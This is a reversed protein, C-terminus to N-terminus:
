RAAQLRGRTVRSSLALCSPRVMVAPVSNGMAVSEFTMMVQATIPAIWVGLTDGCRGIVGSSIALSGDCRCLGARRHKVEVRAIRANQCNYAPVLVPLPCGRILRRPLGASIELAM